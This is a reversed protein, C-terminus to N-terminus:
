GPFTRPLHRQHQAYRQARAVRRNFLAADAVLSPLPCSIRYTRIQGPADVDLPTLAVACVVTFDFETLTVMAGVADCCQSNSIMLGEADYPVLEAYFYTGAVAQHSVCRLRSHLPDAPALVSYILKLPEPGTISNSLVTFSLTYGDRPSLGQTPVTLNAVLYACPSIVAPSQVFTPPSWRAAGSGNRPTSGNTFYYLPVSGCNLFFFLATSAAPKTATSTAVRPSVYLVPPLTSFRGVGEGYGVGGSDNTIAGGAGDPV